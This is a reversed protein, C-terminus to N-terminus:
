GDQVGEHERWNYKQGLMANFKALAHNKSLYVLGHDCQFGTTYGIPVGRFGQKENTDVLFVSEDNNSNYIDSVHDSSLATDPIEFGNYIITPTPKKHKIGRCLYDFAAEANSQSSFVGAQFFKNDEADDDWGFGDIGCMAVAWYRYGEVPKENLPAAPIWGKAHADILLQKIPSNM